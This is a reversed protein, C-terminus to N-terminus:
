SAPCPPRLRILVKAPFEAIGTGVVLINRNIFAVMGECGAPIVLATDELVRWQLWGLPDGPKVPEGVDVAWRVNAIADSASRIEKVIVRLELNEPDYHLLM